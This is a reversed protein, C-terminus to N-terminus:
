ETDNWYRSVGIEIELGDSIIHPKILFILLFNPPRTVSNHSYMTSLFSNQSIIEVICGRSDFQFALYTFRFNTDPFRDPFTIFGEWKFTKMSFSLYNMPCYKFRKKLISATRFQLSSLTLQIKNNDFSRTRKMM